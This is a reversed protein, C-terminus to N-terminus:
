LWKWKTRALSRGKWTLRGTLSYLLSRLAVAANALITLPYLLALALPVGIELCPIVWLLLSLFICGLLADVQAAPAKGLSLCTLIFLPLWFMTMLWTFVLLFPFLRFDFAAFLNKTFGNVAERGGQYMRCTILDSVRVLRWRLGAAKIKRALMLDDIIAARLAAHGGVAQYAERRFLMVQGVASSLWPLRCRYALWIPNFCLSAWSFFPVLLREGWSGMKQQPFGTLLDAHEGTLTSVLSRLAQPQHVTDADTFFLVEGNSQLALQACAQNKGGMRKLNSAASIIRLHSSMSAMEQLISLTRDNSQDDFVLVEFSPYDQALLSNVCKKINQEENRAPVLISVFPFTSPSSHRRGRHLIYINSFIILLIVSQFIILDLILTHNLYNMLDAGV